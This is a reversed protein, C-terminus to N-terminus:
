SENSLDEQKNKEVENWAVEHHKWQEEFLTECVTRFDEDIAALDDNGSLPTPERGEAVGQINSRLLDVRQARRRNIRRQALGFAITCLLMSMPTAIIVGQKSLAIEKLQDETVLLTWEAGKSALRFEDMTLRSINRLGLYPSANTCEWTTRDDWKVFRETTKLSDFVEKLYRFISTRNEQPKSTFLIYKGTSVYSQKDLSYLESLTKHVEVMTAQYHESYYKELDNCGVGEQKLEKRHATGFDLAEKFAKAYLGDIKEVTSKVSQSRTRLEIITAVRRDQEHMFYCAAGVIAIQVLAFTTLLSPKFSIKYM